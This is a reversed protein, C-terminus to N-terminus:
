FVRLFLKSCCLLRHLGFHGILLRELGLENKQLNNFIYIRSLSTDTHVSVHTQKQALTALAHALAHM